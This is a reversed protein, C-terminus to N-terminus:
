DPLPVIELMQEHEAAARRFQHILGAPVAGGELDALLYKTRWVLRAMEQWHQPAAVDCAAELTERLADLDDPDEVPPRLELLRDVLGRIDAGRTSTWRDIAATRRAAKDTRPLGRQEARHRGLRQAVAQRSALGLPQALASYPVGHRAAAELLQHEVRELTSPLAPVARRAYSLATLADIIDARIIESPAKTHSAVFEAIEVPHDSLKAVEGHDRGRLRTRRDIIAEIADTAQRHTTSTRARRPMDINYQRIRTTDRPTSPRGQGDSPFRSLGRWRRPSLADCHDPPSPTSTAEPM